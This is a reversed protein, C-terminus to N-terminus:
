SIIHINFIHNKRKLLVNIINLNNLYYMNYKKKVYECICLNTDSSRVLNYINDIKDKFEDTSFTDQTYVCLLERRLIKMLQEKTDGEM